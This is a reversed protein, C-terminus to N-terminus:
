YCYLKLQNSIFSLAFQTRNELPKSVGGGGTDFTILPNIEHIKSSKIKYMKSLVRKLGGERTAPKYNASYGGRM